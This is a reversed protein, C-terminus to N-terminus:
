AASMQLWVFSRARASPIAIIVEDVRRNDLVKALDTIKGIVPIGYIQQKFKVPNDDLFGIPILNLQPNKQLERVVLAGADGAGIILAKRSKGDPSGVSQQTFSESL